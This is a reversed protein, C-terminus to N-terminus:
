VLLVLFHILIQNHFRYGAQRCSLRLELFLVKSIKAPKDKESDLGDLPWEHLYLHPLRNAHSASNKGNFFM